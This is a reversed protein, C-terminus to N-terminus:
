ARTQGGLAAEVATILADVNFPKPLFQANMALYNPLRERLIHANATFFVVPIAATTPDARMQQFVQIGNVGPMQIDLIVVQPREKRICPYATHGHQCGVTHIGEDELADCVVEVIDPEDDVVVVAAPQTRTVSHEKNAKGLTM